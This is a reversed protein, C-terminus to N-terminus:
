TPCPSSAGLNVRVKWRSGTALPPEDPPAPPLVMGPLDEPMRPPPRASPDTYSLGGSSFAKILQTEWATDGDTTEVGTLHRAGALLLLVGVLAVVFGPWFDHHERARLAPQIPPQEIRERRWNRMVPSYSVHRQRM